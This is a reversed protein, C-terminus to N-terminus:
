VTDSEKESLIFVEGIYKVVKRGIFGCLLAKVRGSKMM